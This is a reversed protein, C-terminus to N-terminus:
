GRAMWAALVKAEKEPTIGSTRAKTRQAATLGDAAGEVSVADLWALTDRATDGIPRFTLGAKLARASSLTGFGAFDGKNDIWMPLESWGEVGQKDLFDASVWTLQAKNGLARNCADLVQKMTVRSGPGLANMTGVVFTALFLWPLQDPDGDLILADRVPRFAADSALVAAFTAAAWGAVWVKSSTRHDM